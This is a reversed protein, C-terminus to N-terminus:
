YPGYNIIKWKTEFDEAYKRYMEDYGENYFAESYSLYFCDTYLPQWNGEHWVKQEGFGGFGEHFEEKVNIETKILIAAVNEYLAEEDTEGNEFFYSIHHNTRDADFEVSKIEWSIVMPDNDLMSSFWNNAIAEIYSVAEKVKEDEATLKTTKPYKPEELIYGEYSIETKLEKGDDDYSYVTLCEEDLTYYGILIETDFVSESLMNGNKDIFWIGGPMREGNEDFTPEEAWSGATYAVGVYSGDEFTKFEIRNFKDTFINGEEDLLLCKGCIVSQWTPGHYIVIRDKFPIEIRDATTEVIVKEGSKLGYKMFDRIKYVYQTITYGFDTEREDKKSEETLVFKGNEYEYRVYNGEFIGLFFQPVNKGNEDILFDLEVEEFATDAIPKGESDLLYFRQVPKESVKYFHKGGEELFLGTEEPVFAKYSYFLADDAEAPEIKDFVAECIIEEGKFLGFKGDESEFIETENELPEEAGCACLMLLVLILALLKKM